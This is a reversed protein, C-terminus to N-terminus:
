WCAAPCPGDGASEGARRAARSKGRSLGAACAPVSPVEPGPRWIFLLSTIRGASRSAVTQAM